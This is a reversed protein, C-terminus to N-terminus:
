INKRTNSNYKSHSCHAVMCVQILQWYQDMISKAQRQLFTSMGTVHRTRGARVDIGMGLAQARLRKKEVRQKKQFEWKQKQFEVWV